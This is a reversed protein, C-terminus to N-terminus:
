TTGPRGLWMVGEFEVSIGQFSSAGLIHVINTEPKTHKPAIQLWRQCIGGFSKDAKAKMNIYMPVSSKEREPGCLYSVGFKGKAKTIRFTILESIM